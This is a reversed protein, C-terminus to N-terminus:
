VLSDFASAPVAVIEAMLPTAQRSYATRRKSATENATTLDDSKQMPPSGTRLEARLESLVQEALGLANASDGNECAEVLLRATDTVPNLPKRVPDTSMQDPPVNHASGVRTKADEPSEGDKPVVAVQQKTKPDTFYAVANM